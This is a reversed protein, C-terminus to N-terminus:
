LSNSLVSLLTRLIRKHLSLTCSIGLLSHNRFHFFVKKLRSVAFCIVVFRAPDSLGSSPSQFHFDTKSSLLASKHFAFSDGFVALSLECMRTSLMAYDLPDNLDVVFASLQIIATLFTSLKIRHASASPM